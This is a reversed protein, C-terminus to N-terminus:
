NLKGINEMLNFLIYKNFVLGNQFLDSCNNGKFYKKIYGFSLLEDYYEDNM